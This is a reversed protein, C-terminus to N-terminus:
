DCRGDFESIFIRNDPPNTAQREYSGIDPASGVTRDLGRQDDALTSDGVLNGKDIAPSQSNLAITQDVGGYDGLPELKPCSSLTGLPVANPTATILNGSGSLIQSAAKTGVDYNANNAFISSDMTITQNSYLGAAFNDFAVHNFAITSNFVKTPVYTGITQIVSATNGSITSNLFEAKYTATSSTKLEMASNVSATNGSFTSYSVTTNHGGTSVFLGGGRYAYNGSFTSGAVLVTGGLVYAGGGIAGNSGNSVSNGSVTSYKVALGTKAYIAGGLANETTSSSVAFNGTVTSHVLEVSGKAYIAGGKSPIASSSPDLVCSEITSYQVVVNGDSFICGGTPDSNTYKADALTVHSITLTGTNLHYFISHHVPTALDNGGSITLADAGPGLITLSAVSIPIASSGSITIKSCLGPQFEITDGTTASAITNRLTGSGSGDSCDTVLLTAAYSAENVGLALALCMALQRIRPKRRSIHISSVSRSSM